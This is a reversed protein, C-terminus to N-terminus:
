QHGIVVVAAVAPATVVVLVVALLPWTNLWWRPLALFFCSGLAQFKQIAKTL